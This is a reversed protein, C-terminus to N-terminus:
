QVHQSGRGRSRDLGHLERGLRAGDMRHSMRTRSQPCLKAPGYQVETTGAWAAAAFCAAIVGFLAAAALGRRM